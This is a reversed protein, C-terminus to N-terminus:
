KEQSEVAKWAPFIQIKIKVVKGSRNVSKIDAEEGIELPIHPIPYCGTGKGIVMVEVTYAFV